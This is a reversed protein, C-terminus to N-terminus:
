VIAAVVPDVRGATIIHREAVVEGTDPEAHLVNAVLQGGAVVVRYRRAPHQRDAALAAVHEPPAPLLHQDLVAEKDAAVIQAPKLRAADAGAVADRPVREAAVLVPDSRDALADREPQRLLEADGAAGPGIEARQPAVVLLVQHQGRGLQGVLRAPQ